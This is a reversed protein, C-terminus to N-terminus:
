KMVIVRETRKFGNSTFQILYLGNRLNDTNFTVTQNLIDSLNQELIKNGMMDVLRVNVNEREFLNFLVNFESPAPNPYVRVSEDELDLLSPSESVFFDFNDLYINNGNANTFVFAVLIDSSGAYINLDVTETLWDEKTTPIWAENSSTVALESGSKDYVIENFNRGCDTSILIQLRDSLNLRTAYSLDFTMSASELESLDLKPSVLWNQTGVETLDFANIGIAQEDLTLEDFSTFAWNHAGTISFPFWEM